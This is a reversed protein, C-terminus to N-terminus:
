ASRLNRLNRLRRRARKEEADRYIRRDVATEPTKVKTPKERLAKPTWTRTRETRQAAKRAEAIRRAGRRADSIPRSRTKKQAM